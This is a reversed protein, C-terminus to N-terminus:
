IMHEDKWMDNNDNENEELSDDRAQMVLSLYLLFGGHGHGCMHFSSSSFPLLTTHQAGEEPTNSYISIKEVIGM